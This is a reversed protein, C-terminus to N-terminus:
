LIEGINWAEHPWHDNCCDVNWECDYAGVSERRCQFVEETDETVPECDKDSDNNFFVKYEALASEVIIM